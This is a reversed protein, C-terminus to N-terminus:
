GLTTEQRVSNLVIVSSYLLCTRCIWSMSGSTIEGRMISITLLMSQFTARHGRPPESCRAKAGTNFILRLVQSLLLITNIEFLNRSSSQQSYIGGCNVNQCLRVLLNAANTSSLPFKTCSHIFPHIYPHINSTQYKTVVILAAGGDCRFGDLLMLAVCLGVFHDQPSQLHLLDLQQQAIILDCKRYHLLWSYLSLRVCSSCWRLNRPQMRRWYRESKSYKWGTHM